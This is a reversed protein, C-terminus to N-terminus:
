IGKRVLVKKKISEIQDTKDNFVNYKIYDVIEKYKNIDYEGGSYIVTPIVINRRKMEDLFVFGMERIESNEMIPFNMDLFLLDYHNCIIKKLGSMFNNSTEINDDKLYNCLTKIKYSDDDVILINM